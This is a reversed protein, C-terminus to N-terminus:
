SEYSVVTNRGSAKAKYLAKDASKLIESLNSIEDTISSVGFSVTIPIKIGDSLAFKTSTINEQLRWAINVADKSCTKPLLIVFEEGGYRAVLINSLVGQMRKVLVQLVEDGINHGYTDNVLKFFDIDAMIASFPQKDKINEQMAEEAKEMFYRRNYAGTLPDMYALKELHKVMSLANNIERLDRTYSIVMKKGEITVPVFTKECPIQKKDLTQHLWGFSVRGSDFSTKIIEKIKEISLRGDPQYEPSLEFFHATYEQENKLEFLRLVERNAELV